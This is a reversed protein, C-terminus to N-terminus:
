RPQVNFHAYTKQVSVAQWYADDDASHLDQQIDKRPDRPMMNFITRCDMIQWFAWGKHHKHEAYLDEIIVMDFQPGQCWIKDAGVLYKNFQKFFDQVPIRNDDTFTSKQIHEDQKAWFEMTSESYTRDSQDDVSPRWLTKYTPPVNSYPDFRVAGVSLIISTPATDLTEIDVMVHTTM